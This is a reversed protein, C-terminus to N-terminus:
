GVSPQRTGIRAAVDEALYLMQPTFDLMKQLNETFQSQWGLAM